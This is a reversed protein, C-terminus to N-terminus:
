REVSPAEPVMRLGSVATGAFGGDSGPATGYSYEAARDCYKGISYRLGARSRISAQDRPAASARHHKWRPFDQPRSGDRCDGSLFDVEQRPPCSALAPAVRM